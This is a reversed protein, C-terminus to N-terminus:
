CISVIGQQYYFAVPTIGKMVNGNDSHVFQPCANEKKTVLEFLEKAHDDQENEHIARDTGAAGESLGRRLVGGRIPGGPVPLRM